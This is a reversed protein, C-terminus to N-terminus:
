DVLHTVPPGAPLLAVTAIAAVFGLLMWALRTLHAPKRAVIAAVIPILMLLWIPVLVALNMEGEVAFNESTEHGHYLAIGPLTWSLQHLRRWQRGLIRVARDSSTAILVTVISLGLLGALIEPRLLHALLPEPQIALTLGTKTIAHALGWLGANIGLHRRHALLALGLRGFLGPLLRLSSASLALMLLLMFPLTTIGNGSAPPVILLLVNAAIGILSVAYLAVVYRNM